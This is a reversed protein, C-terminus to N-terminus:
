CDYDLNHESIDAKIVLHVDMVAHLVDMKRSTSYQNQESCILSLNGSLSTKTNGESASTSHPDIRKGLGVSVM